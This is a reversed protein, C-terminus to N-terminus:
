SNGDQLSSMLCQMNEPSTTEPAAGHNSLPAETIHQQPHSSVRLHKTKGLEEGLLDYWGRVEKQPDMVSRMGFSMCGLLGSRLYFTELFIPCKCDPVTKTKQRGGPDDDPVMGVKVYSDHTIHEKGMLGKAKM